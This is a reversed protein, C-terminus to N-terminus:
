RQWQRLLFWQVGVLAAILAIEAAIYGVLM